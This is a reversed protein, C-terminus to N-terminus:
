REPPPLPPAPGQKTLLRETFDLREELEALRRKLAERDDLEERLEALFVAHQRSLRHQRRLLVIGAGIAGTILGNLLAWVLMASM